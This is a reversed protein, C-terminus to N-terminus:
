HNHASSRTRRSRDGHGRQPQVSDIFLDMGSGRGERGRSSRGGGFDGEAADSGGGEGHRSGAAARVRGDSRPVRCGLSRLKDAVLATRAGPAVALFDEVVLYAAEWGNVELLQAQFQLTRLLQGTNSTQDHHAVIQLAVHRDPQPNLAIDILLLGDHTRRALQHQVGLRQVIAAVEAKESM